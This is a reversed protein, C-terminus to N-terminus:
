RPRGRRAKRIEVNVERLTLRDTGAQVSTQEIGLGAPEHADVV